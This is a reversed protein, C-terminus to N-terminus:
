YISISGEFILSPQLLSDTLLSITSAGLKNENQANKETERTAPSWELLLGSLKGEFMPSPQLHNDTYKGIRVAKKLKTM